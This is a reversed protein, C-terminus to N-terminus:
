ALARCSMRWASPMAKTDSFSPMSAHCPRHSLQHAASSDFRARRCTSLRMTSNTRILRATDIQSEACDTTPVIGRSVVASEGMVIQRKSCRRRTPCNCRFLQRLPHSEFGCKARHNGTSFSPPTASWRGSWRSCLWASNGISDVSEGVRVSVSDPGEPSRHNCRQHCWSSTGAAM